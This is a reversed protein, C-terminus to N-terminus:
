SAVNKHTRVCVPTPVGVVLWCMSQFVWLNKKHKPCSEFRQDHFGNSRSASARGISGGRGGILIVILHSPCIVINGVRSDRTFTLSSLSVCIVPANLKWVNLWGGMGLWLEEVMTLVGRKLINQEGSGDEYEVGMKMYSWTKGVECFRSQSSTRDSYSHIQIFSLGFFDPHSLTVTLFPDVDVFTPSMSHRSFQDQKWYQWCRAHRCMKWLSLIVFHIVQSNGFLGSTCTCYWKNRIACTRYTRVNYTIGFGMDVKQHSPRVTPPISVFLYRMITASYDFIRYHPFRNHNSGTFCCYHIKYAFLM